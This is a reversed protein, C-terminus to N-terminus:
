EAEEEDLTTQGGAKVVARDFIEKLKVLDEESECKAIKYIMEYSEDDTQVKKRTINATAHM